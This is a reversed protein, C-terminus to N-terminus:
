KFSSTNWSSTAFIKDASTSWIGTWATSMIGWSSELQKHAAAWNCSKTGLTFFITGHIAATIMSLAFPMPAWSSELLIHATEWSLSATGLTRFISGDSAAWIGWLTFSMIGCCKDFQKNAAARRFSSASSTSEITGARRSSTGCWSVLKQACSKELQKPERMKRWSETGSALRNRVVEESLVCLKTTKVALRKLLRSGLKFPFSRVKPMGTTMQAQALTLKYWSFNNIEIVFRKFDPLVKRTNVSQLRQARSQDKSTKSGSATSELKTFINSESLIRRPRESESTASLRNPYKSHFRVLFQCDQIRFNFQKM